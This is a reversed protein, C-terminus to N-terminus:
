IPLEAQWAIQFRGSHLESITALMAQANQRKWGSRQRKMRQHVVTNVGNEVTGSGIPYGEQRFRAYDMKSKRTEFYAPSQRVEDLCTILNWDLAHLATVVDEDTQIVEIDADVTNCGPRYSRTAGQPRQAGPV